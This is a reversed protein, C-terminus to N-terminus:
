LVTIKEMYRYGHKKDDSLRLVFPFTDERMCLEFDGTKFVESQAPDFFKAGSTRKVNARETEMDPLPSGTLLARIYESCLIDEETPTIGDLGMAVLSVVSPSRMKIYKAIASACVLSGAIIEDAGSAAAIGQTGASTTHIVTKGRFDADLLDFPSNGLDFGEIRVGRREGCLVASAHRKKFSFAEEIDKVPIILGAGGEALYAEVTFARFVDIIVAIGRARKAGEICNLVNIEM